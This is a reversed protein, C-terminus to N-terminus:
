KLSSILGLEQANLIPPSVDGLAVRAHLHVIIHAEEKHDLTEQMVGLSAVSAVNLLM